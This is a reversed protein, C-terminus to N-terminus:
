HGPAILGSAALALVAVELLCLAGFLRDGRRLYIPTVALLPLASCGALIAIGLLNQMDSRNLASVWNWGGELGHLAMLERSPLQWLKALQDVPIAPAVLDTVYVFFAAVLVALGLWGSWRLWEAYRIQEPAIAETNVTSRAKEM